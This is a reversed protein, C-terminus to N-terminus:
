HGHSIRGAEKKELSGDGDRPSTDLAECSHCLKYSIDVLCLCGKRQPGYGSGQLCSEAMSGRKVRALKGICLAKGRRHRTNLILQIGGDNTEFRKSPTLKHKRCQGSDRANKGGGVPQLSCIAAANSSLLQRNYKNM